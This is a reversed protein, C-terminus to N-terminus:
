KQTDDHSLALRSALGLKGLLASVHHEVTRESRHLRQAIARNSLGERLLALVTRERPTLGLPDNRVAGYPGRPISRVGAARLAQRAARAAPAAGLTDFLVLAERQADADGFLLVMAQEYRCGFSAWAAAAARLDGALELRHPAAVALPDIQPDDGCRRLWCGLRGIRWRDGTRLAVPLAARAIRAAAQPDGRLWAAEVTAGTQPSYWPDVSLALRGDIMRSWYDDASDLGARLDLLALLHRSQEDELPSLEPTARVIQLETRAAPWEGQEIWACARRIRLRAADLDRDRADCYGIGADCAAHLREFQRHLLAMSAVVAHVRAVAEPLDLRLAIALSRELCQWAAPTDARTLEAPAVISLAYCLGPDDAHAEFWAAARGGWDLVVAPSEDFLHLHAMTAQALALERPAQPERSAALVSLVAIAAAAHAQGQAIAGGFWEIRAMERLDIGQALPQQLRRHLELAQRRSRLAEDIRHMSMCAVSHAVLLEAQQVPDLHAAHSLALSCHAAAQRHAGARAAERAAVPALRVVAAPLGGHEAHHVLRATQAGRLSLADFVAGHLSAARAPECVSQISQRALEHRFRLLGSERQLLGAAACEDLAAAAGDIIADIVDAELGAPAVSVLDLAERASPSLQAARGLVADRVAAPLRRGDGALWETVFFPNGQTAAHLGEANRGAQRALEAVAQESLPPLPLRATCDAPLSGLLWRLPHSAGLADDRWCLVLLSRTSRIRRGVYRLLDLTAGDAWHVDDIVLVAPRPRDRLLALMGASVEPTARGAHVAQALSPPLRDMLEILPGLVPAALLPECAGWLWEVDNGAQQRAAQVLTTKGAGAEGHVLLCAGGDRNAGRLGALRTQFVRLETERELLPM